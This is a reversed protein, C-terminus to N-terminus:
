QRCAVWEGQKEGGVSRSRLCREHAHSAARKKPAYRIHASLRRPEVLADHFAGPQLLMMCAAIPLSPM